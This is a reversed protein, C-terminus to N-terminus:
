SPTLAPKTLHPSPHFSCGWVVMAFYCCSVFDLIELTQDLRHGPMRLGDCQRAALLLTGFGQNM